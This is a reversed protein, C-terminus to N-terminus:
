SGMKEVVNEGAITMEYEGQGVRKFEQSGSIATRFTSDIDNSISWRMFKYVTYVHQVGVREIRLYKKLWYAIVLYKKLHSNPNKQKAFHEFSIDGSVLDLSLM